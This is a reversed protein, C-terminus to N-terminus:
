YNLNNYYGNNEAEVVNMEQQLTKCLKILAAYDNSTEIIRGHKTTSFHEKRIVGFRNTSMKYYLVFM